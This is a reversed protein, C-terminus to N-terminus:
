QKKLLVSLKQKIKALKPNIVAACYAQDPNRAFYNHHYEEAEYFKTLPEVTTVANVGDKQLEAIYKEAAIKQEDNSCLITSRYQTGMDNGQRNLTTPDHSGFFVTLIEELSIIAPDFEVRVVEAHGTASGCVSEYTPNPITGGAYGPVVSIVGRIKKGGSASGGLTSFVAETCWFCGSGLVISQTPM